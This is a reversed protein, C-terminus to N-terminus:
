RRNARLAELAKRKREEKAMKLSRELREQELDEKRAIREAQTEEVDIDDLGAEMDSSGDSAYDYRPGQEDEEEDDYDIFDDLEEDYEDYRSGRSQRSRVPVPNLLAGGRPAKDNRKKAEMKPRATGSYGTVAQAAKKLKKPPEDEAPRGTKSNKSASAIGNGSRITKAAGNGNAAPRQGPRASGSYGASKGNVARPAAKINAPKLDKEERPMRKSAGKEVKKHQIKGVQGMAAQARQGRALIEAFSGKKPPAKSAASEAAPASSPRPPVASPKAVRNSGNSPRATLSPKAANTPTPRHSLAPGSSSTPTQSPKPPSPRRLTKSEDRRLDDEAKRKPISVPRPLSPTATVSPSPNGGSIQALLDGIPM